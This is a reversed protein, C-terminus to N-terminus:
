EKEVEYVTELFIRKHFTGKAEIKTNVIGHLTKIDINLLEMLTHFVEM